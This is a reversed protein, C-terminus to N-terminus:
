GGLGLLRLIASFIRALASAPPPTEPEASKAPNKVLGAGGGSTKASAETEEEGRGAATEPKKEGLLTRVYAAVPPPLGLIEGYSEPLRDYFKWAKQLDLFEPALEGEYIWLPFIEELERLGYYRHRASLYVRYGEVPIWTSNQDQLDELSLTLFLRTKLHPAEAAPRPSSSVVNRESSDRANASRVLNQHESPPPATPIVIKGTIERTEEPFSSTTDRGLEAPREQTTEIVETTLTRSHFHEQPAKKQEEERPSGATTPIPEKAPSSAQPKEQNRAPARAPSGSPMELMNKARATQPPAPAAAEGPGSEEPKRDSEPFSSSKKAAPIPHAHPSSTASPAPKVPATAQPMSAPATKPAAATLAGVTSAASEKEAKGGPMTLESAKREHSRREDGLGPTEARAAQRGQGLEPLAAGSSRNEKRSEAVPPASSSPTAGGREEPPKPELSASAKASPAPADGAQPQIPSAGSHQERAFSTAGLKETKPSAAAPEAPSGPAEAGPPAAVLKSEKSVVEDVSEKAPSPNGAPGPKSAATSPDRSEGPIAAEAEAPAKGMGAKKASFIEKGDRHCQLDAEPDKVEWANTQANFAPAAKSETTWSFKEEPRGKKPPDDIWRWRTRGQPADGSNKWNGQKPGMGRIVMVREREVERIEASFGDIKKPAAAKSESNLVKLQLEVKFMLNKPPLPLQAIEVGRFRGAKEQLSIHKSGVLLLYRAAALPQVTEAWEYAVLARDIDETTGVELIALFPEKRLPSAIFENLSQLRHSDQGAEKLAAQVDLPFHRSSSSLILIKM